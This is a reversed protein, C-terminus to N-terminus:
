RWWGRIARWSAPVFAPPMPASPSRISSRSTASRIRAGPRTWRWRRRSRAPRRSAPTSRPTASMSRWCPTTSAASPWFSRCTTSAPSPARRTPPRASISWRCGSGRRRTSPTSTPCSAPRPMPTSWCRSPARCCPAASIPRISRTPCRWSRSPARRRSRRRWRPSSTSAKRAAPPRSSTSCGSRAPGRAPPLAPEAMRRHRRQPRSHGPQASLPELRRDRRQRDPPRLRAHRGAARRGVHQDDVSAGAARDSRHSREVARVSFRDADGHPASQVDFGM